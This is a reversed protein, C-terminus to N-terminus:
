GVIMYGLGSTMTHPLMTIQPSVVMKKKETSATVTAKSKKIAKGIM